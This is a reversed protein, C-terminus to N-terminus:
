VWYGKKKCYCCRDRDIEGDSANAAVSKPKAQGGTTAATAATAALAVVLLFKMAIKEDDCPGLNTIRLGFEDIHEGDKFAITEFETRLRRM